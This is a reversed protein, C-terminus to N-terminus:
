VINLKVIALSALGGLKNRAISRSNQHGLIKVPPCPFSTTLHNPLRLSWPRYSAYGALINSFILNVVSEVDRSNQNHTFRCAVCRIWFAAGFGLALWFEFRPYIQQPNLGLNSM